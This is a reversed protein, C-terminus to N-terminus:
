VVPSEPNQKKNLLPPDAAKYQFYPIM